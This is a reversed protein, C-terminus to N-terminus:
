VEGANRTRRDLWAVLDAQRYRVLRGVKVFPINYRGTCRWVSLTAPSVGLLQAAEADNLLLDDNM